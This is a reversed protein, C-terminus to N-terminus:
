ILFYIPPREIKKIEPLPLVFSYFENLKSNANPVLFGAINELWNHCNNCTHCVNDQHSDSSDSKQSEECNDNSINLDAAGIEAKTQHVVGEVTCSDFATYFFLLFAFVFRM